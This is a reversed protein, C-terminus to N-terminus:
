STLLSHLAPITTSAISVALMWYILRFKGDVEAFKVDMKANLADFRKDHETFRADIRADQAAFRADLCAELYDRTVLSDMNFVFAEAMLEAQTEAQQEPVGAEKLRRAFNLTDFAIAAM